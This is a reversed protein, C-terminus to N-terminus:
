GIMMGRVIERAVAERATGGTAKRANLSADLTVYDYIDAEIADSFQRFEDLTLEPIDKGTEICYRVTKGVVNLWVGSWAAGYNQHHGPYNGVIDSVDDDLKLFHGLEVDVHDGTEDAVRGPGARDPADM